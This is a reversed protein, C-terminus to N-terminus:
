ISNRSKDVFWGKLLPLFSLFFILYFQLTVLGKTLFFTVEVRRFQIPEFDVDGGDFKLFLLSDGREEDICKVGLDNGIPDVLTLLMFDDIIISCGVYSLNFVLEPM